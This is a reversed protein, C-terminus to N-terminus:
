CDQPFWEGDWCSRPVRLGVRPRLPNLMPPVQGQPLAAGKRLEWTRRPWAQRKALFQQWGARRSVHVQALLARIRFSVDEDAPSTFAGLESWDAKERFVEAIDLPTANVAIPKLETPLVAM